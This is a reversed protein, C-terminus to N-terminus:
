VRPHLVEALEELISSARQHFFLILIYVCVMLVFFVLEVFCLARRSTELKFLTEVFGAKNNINLNELLIICLTTWFSVVLVVMHVVIFARFRSLWQKNYQPTEAKIVRYYCYSYVLVLAIQIILSLISGSNRTQIAIVFYVVMLLLFAIFSVLGLLKDFTTMPKTELESSEVLTEDQHKKEEFSMDDAEVKQKFQKLKTSTYFFAFTDLVAVICCIIMHLVLLSKDSSGSDNLDKMASTVSFNKSHLIFNVLGPWMWFIVFFGRIVASLFSANHYSRRTIPRDTSKFTNWASTVAFVCTNLAGFACVVVFASANPVKQTLDQGSEPEIFGKTYAMVFLVVTIGIHTLASVISMVRLGRLYKGLDSTYNDITLKAANSAEGVLTVGGHEHYAHPHERPQDHHQKRRTPKKAAASASAGMLDLEVDGPSLPDVPDRDMEVPERKAELVPQQVRIEVERAEARKVSHSPSSTQQAADLLAWSDSSANSTPSAPASSLSSPTAPEDVVVVDSAVSSASPSAVSAVDEVLVV